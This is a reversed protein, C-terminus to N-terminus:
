MLTKNQVGKAKLKLQQLRMFEKEYFPRKPHGSQQYPHDPQYMKAIEGEIEGLTMSGKKVVDDNFKDEGMGEGVSVMFKTFDPDDLLGKDTMRKIAEADAFAEIGTQAVTMKRDFAEGYLDKIEKKGADFEQQSLMQTEKTQEGVSNNYWDLMHQAQHPLIGLEHAQAKFKDFFADNAQLGEPINNKIEYAEVTDPVGLQRMTDKWKDADWSKDPVNMKDKGMAGTAHVLSKMMNNTNFTKSEKDYHKLLTPNGQLTEDFGEPYVVEDAGPDPDPDGGGGTTFNGAQSLLIHTLFPLRFFSKKM